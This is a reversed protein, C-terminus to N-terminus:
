MVAVHFTNWHCVMEEETTFSFRATGFAQCDDMRCVYHMPGPDVDPRFAM